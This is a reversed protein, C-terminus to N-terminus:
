PQTSALWGDASEPHSGDPPTLKQVLQALEVRNRVGTKQFIRYNHDKVTKLSIFLADAIEQNTLGQCVLQVVEAERKSIGHFQELNPASRTVPQVSPAVAVLTPARDCFHIWLVTVLNYIMALGVTALVYTNQSVSSSIRYWWTIVTVALFLASYAAGLLRLNRGLDDAPLRHALLFFRLSFLALALFTLSILGRAFLRLPIPQNLVVLLLTLLLTGGALILTVRQQTRLAPQSRTQQSAGLTFQLYSSALYIALAMSIWMLGGSLLRGALPTLSGLVTAEVFKFILRVLCWLNYFVLPPVLAATVPSYHHHSHRSVAALSVFGTALVALFTLVM